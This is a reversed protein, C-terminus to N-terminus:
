HRTNELLEFNSSYGLCGVLGFKPVSVCMQTTARDKTDRREIQERELLNDAITVEERGHRNIEILWSLNTQAQRQVGRSNFVANGQTLAVCQKEKGWGATLWWQEKREWWEKGCV